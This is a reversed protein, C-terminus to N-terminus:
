TNSARHVTALVFQQNKVNLSPLLVEANAALRPQMQLLIDYMVDGVVEVHETIGEQALQTRATETPCFLCQSLHDTVVRNIEEPMTRNYSRLGAEIHAIPIHLKAAALAGALTSNTDGFVVVWDPKVDLLVREIADLMLATQKGHPGSGVHLHYDPEPLALEEFFLSSMRYDYHQGTHLILEEHRQRLMRSVPALKVFQPRAGVISVLRM